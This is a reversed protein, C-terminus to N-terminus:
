SIRVEVSTVCIPHVVVGITFSAVTVQRPHAILWVHCSYHQGFRKIKPLIQSVYYNTETQNLPQQHDLENCPDIVLGCVGYRLVVAKALDLVWNISPLCDDECMWQKGEEFEDPTM